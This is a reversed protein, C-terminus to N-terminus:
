SVQFKSWPVFGPTHVINHDARLTELRPLRCIVSLDTINNRRCDLESLSRARCLKPSVGIGSQWRHGSAGFKVASWATTSPPFHIFSLTWIWRPEKMECVVNPLVDFKNNSINLFRLVDLDLFRGPLRELRNNQVKLSRLRPIRDLGAEDLDVIRNCSLDLRELSASHRVSQPVKKM